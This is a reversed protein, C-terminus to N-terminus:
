TNINKNITKFEKDMEMKRMDYEYQMKQKEFEIKKLDINESTPIFPNAKAQENMATALAYDKCSIFEKGENAEAFATYAAKGEKTTRNVDPSIAYRENFTHPELMLTHVVSGFAMAPTTTDEYAPNLYKNWYHRPSKAIQKLGSASICTRDQHYNENTLM